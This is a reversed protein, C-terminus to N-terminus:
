TPWLNLGVIQHPPEPYFKLLAAHCNDIKLRRYFRPDCGLFECLMIRIFAGHSVALHRGPAVEIEALLGRARAVSEDLPEAGPPYVPELEDTYSAYADRLALDAGHELEGFAIGELAGASPEVLRADAELERVVGANRLGAQATILARRLPSSYARDFRAGTLSDGLEDAQALGLQTLPVDTHTAMRDEVNWQTQGHRVILLCHELAMVSEALRGLRTESEPQTHPTQM